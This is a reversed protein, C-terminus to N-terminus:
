VLPSVLIDVATEGPQLQGMASGYFPVDGFAMVRGDTSVMLYGGGARVSDMRVVSPGTGPVPWPMVGPVSGHFVSGFNFIGGDRGSLAYGGPTTAMSNVPLNLHQGGMSGRFPAAFSFVGGDSAVMWYGSGDGDLTM